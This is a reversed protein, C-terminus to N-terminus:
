QGETESAFIGNLGKVFRSYVQDVMSVASRQGDVTAPDYEDLLGMNKLKAVVEATPVSDLKMKVIELNRDRARENAGSLPIDKGGPLPTAYVLNDWLARADIQDDASLSDPLHWADQERVEVSAEVNGSPLAKDRRRSRIWSLAENTAATTCFKSMDIIKNNPHNRFYEVMKVSLNQVVDDAAAQPSFEVSPFNELIQKTWRVLGDRNAKLYDVFDATNERAFDNIESEPPAIQDHNLAASENMM